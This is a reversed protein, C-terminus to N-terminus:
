RLRAADDSETTRVTRYSYEISFTSRGFILLRSSSEFHSPLWVGNVRNYRRDIETQRTWFSPSKAPSGKIRVVAYDETDVWVDGDLSYKGKKKPTLALRYCPRGDCVEDGSLSFAYNDATLDVEAKREGAAESEAELVKDFVRQRIFGSGTQGTIRNSLGDSRRFTTAVDMTAYVNFATNGASFVRDVEYELLREKQREKYAAMRELISSLKDRSAAPDADSQIEQALSLSAALLLSWCCLLGVGAKLLTRGSRSLDRIQCRSHPM